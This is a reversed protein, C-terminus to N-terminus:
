LLDLGESLIVQVESMIILKVRNDTVINVNLQGEKTNKRPKPDQGKRQKRYSKSASKSASGM